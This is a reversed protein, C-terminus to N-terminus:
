WRTDVLKILYEYTSFTIAAGPATKSLHALLGKYFGIFGENRLVTKFVHKVNRYKNVELKNSAANNKGLKLHDNNQYLRAKVLLLPYTICAAASKTIAGMFPTLRVPLQQEDNLRVVFRRLNEYFYM